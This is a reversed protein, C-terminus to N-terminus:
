PGTAPADAAVCAVFAAITRRWADAEAPPAAATSPLLRAHVEAVGTARVLDAVNHARVGGGAMVTLAAGAQRVLAGIAGAGQAATPAGGSTLVRDVGLALLADLPRPCIRATTSPGHCTVPLARAADIM